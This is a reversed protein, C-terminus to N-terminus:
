RVSRTLGLGNRDSTTNGPAFSGVNVYEESTINSWLAGAGSTSTPAIAAGFFGHDQLLRGETRISWNESKSLGVAIAAAPNDSTPTSIVIGDDRLEHDLLFQIGFASNDAFSGDTFDEHWTEASAFLPFSLAIALFCTSSTIRQVLSPTIRIVHIPSKM